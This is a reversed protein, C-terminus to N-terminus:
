VDVDVGDGTKLMPGLVPFTLAINTGNAKKVRGHMAAM